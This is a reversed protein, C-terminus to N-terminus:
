ASDACFAVEKLFLCSFPLHNLKKMLKSPVSNSTYRAASFQISYAQPSGKLM